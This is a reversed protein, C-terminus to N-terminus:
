QEGSNYCSTKEVRQRDDPCRVHIAAVFIALQQKVRRVRQQHFWERAYLYHETVNLFRSVFGTLYFFQTDL